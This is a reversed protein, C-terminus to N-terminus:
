DLDLPITEGLFDRCRTMDVGDWFDLPVPIKGTGPVDVVYTPSALGSLTRRINSMILREKAPDCVFAELGRVYDCRYIYYPRVGLSALKFFLEGLVQEDDNIDKLFVTQSLLVLGTQRLRALAGEVEPDLEAPHNVHLMGYVGRTRSLDQLLELVRQLPRANLSAPSQIPLRTGVRVIRIQDLGILGELIQATPGPTFLPDGGSLIVENIEKHARIYDLAAAIDESTLDGDRTGIQRHRTCFQCHAACRYSVKWLVRSAYKHVIGKTPSFESEEGLPDLDEFMMPLLKPPAYQAAVGAHGAEILRRVHGTTRVPLRDEAALPEMITM